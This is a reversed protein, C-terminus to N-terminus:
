FNITHTAALLNKAAISQAEQCVKNSVQLNEVKLTGNSDTEIFSFCKKANQCNITANDDQTMHHFSATKMYTNGAENICTALSHVIRIGKADSRTAALKPIAVAALIGIIVIVFVVEIMTFAKKM